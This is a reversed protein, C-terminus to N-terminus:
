FRTTGQTPEMRLIAGDAEDTLLYLLGDPGQRVDRIRQHLDWLLIERRIEQGDDNFVVRQLHGTTPLRGVTMAGVFANGRWAPFRDGDYVLLGSLSISPMWYVLPGEMGPMEFRGQWPGDYDRGMSVLPWGYNGGPRVVNIEDGGQPGMEANWIQGTRPHVVLGLSNRHGLSFIEPRYGARGV